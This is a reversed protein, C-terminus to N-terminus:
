VCNIKSKREDDLPQDTQSPHVHLSGQRIFHENVKGKVLTKSLFWAIIKYKCSAIFEL